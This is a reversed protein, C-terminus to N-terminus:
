INDFSVNQPTVTFELEIFELSPTPKIFIKGRFTNRDSDEIDMAVSVRFDTLGREKRINDLIPNVLSLFQNRVTTDNPDFLLRKSVSM